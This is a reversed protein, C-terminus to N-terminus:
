RRPKLTREYDEFRLKYIKSRTESRAVVGEPCKGAVEDLAARTEPIVEQLLAYAGELTRPFSAADIRRLVPVREVGVTAALEDLSREDLWNQRGTERWFSIESLPKETLWGLHEDGFRAADFLRFGVKGMGSYQKSAGTVKGGFLEGFLVLFPEQRVSNIAGATQKLADVIGLAPDGILDGNAWLLNERSGLLYRGDPCLLIRVNTGDIKETLILEGVPPLPYSEPQLRGKEGLPHFTAISPYKTLTNLASLPAEALRFERM